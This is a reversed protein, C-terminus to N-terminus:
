TTLIHCVIQLLLLQSISAEFKKPAYMIETCRKHVSNNNSHVYQNKVVIANQANLDAVNYDPAKKGKAPPKPIYRSFDDSLKAHETLHLFVENESDFHYM